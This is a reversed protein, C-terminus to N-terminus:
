ATPVDAGVNHVFRVLRLPVQTGKAFFQRSSVDPPNRDHPTKHSKVARERGQMGAMATMSPDNTEM